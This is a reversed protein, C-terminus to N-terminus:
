GDTGDCCGERTLGAGGAIWYRTEYRDEWAIRGDEIGLLRGSRFSLPECRRGADEDEGAEPPCWGILAARTAALHEGLERRNRASAGGPDDPAAIVVAVAITATMLQVAGADGGRNEGAVTEVPAVGALPPRVKVADPWDLLGLVDRLLDSADIGAAWEPIDMTGAWAPLCDPRERGKRTFLARLRAVAADAAPFDMDLM